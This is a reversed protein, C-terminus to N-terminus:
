PHGHWTSLSAGYANSGIDVVQPVWWLNHIWGHTSRRMREGLWDAGVAVAAEVGYFLAPHPVLPRVIPDYETFSHGPVSGSTFNRETAGVDRVKAALDLELLFDGTGQHYSACLTTPLVFCSTQQPQSM